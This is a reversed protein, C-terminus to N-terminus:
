CKPNKKQRKAQRKNTLMMYRVMEDGFIREILKQDKKLLGSLDQLCQLTDLDCHLMTGICKCIPSSDYDGISFGYKNLKYCVFMQKGYSTGTAGPFRSWIWVRVKKVITDEDVVKPSVLRMQLCEPWEFYPQRIMHQWLCKPFVGLM